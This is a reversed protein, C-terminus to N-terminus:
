QTGGPDPFQVRYFGTPLLRADMDIIYGGNTANFTWPSAFRLLRVGVAHLNVTFTVAILAVIYQITRFKM